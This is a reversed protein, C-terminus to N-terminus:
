NYKSYFSKIIDVIKQQYDKTIKEHVPLMIINESISKSNLCISNYYNYIKEESCNKYYYNKVDIKKNLLYEFLENKTKKLDCIIPFELFINKENFEDQPFNLNKIKKLSDFYFKSKSTRNIQKIELDKFQNLLIKKQFDHM